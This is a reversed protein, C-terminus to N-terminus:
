LGLAVCSVDTEAQSLSDNVVEIELMYTDLRLSLSRVYSVYFQINYPM